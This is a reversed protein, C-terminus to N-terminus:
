EAGHHMVIGVFDPKEEYFKALISDVMGDLQSYSITRGDEVIAPNEPHKLVAEKFRSYITRKNMTTISNRIIPNM